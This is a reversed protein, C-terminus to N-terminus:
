ERLQNTMGSFRNWRIEKRLAKLIMEQSTTCTDLNLADNIANLADRYITVDGNKELPELCRPDIVLKRYGCEM